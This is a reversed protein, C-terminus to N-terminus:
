AGQLFAFHHRDARGARDLDIHANDGAGVAVQRVLNLFAAKAGVKIIAQVYKGDLHQRQAFATRVDGRQGEGHQQAMDGLALAHGPDAIGRESRQGIVGPRAIDALELVHHAPCQKQRLAMGFDPDFM